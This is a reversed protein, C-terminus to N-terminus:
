ESRSNNSYTYVYSAKAALTVDSIRIGQQYCQVGANNMVEEM